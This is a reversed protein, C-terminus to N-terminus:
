LAKSRAVMWDPKSTPANFCQCCCWCAETKQHHSFFPCSIALGLSKEERKRERERMCEFCQTEREAVYVYVCVCVSYRVREREWNTDQTLNNVPKSVSRDIKTISFNALTFTAIISNNSSFFSRFFQKDHFRNQSLLYVAEHIKGLYVQQQIFIGWLVSVYPM